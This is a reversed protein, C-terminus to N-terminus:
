LNLLFVLAISIPAVWRLLWYWIKYFTPNDM